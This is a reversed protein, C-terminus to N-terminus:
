GCAPLPHFQGIGGRAGVENAATDVAHDHCGVAIEVDPDAGVFANFGDDLLVAFAPDREGRKAKPLAIEVVRHHFLDRVNAIAVIGIDVARNFRLLHEIVFHRRRQEGDGLIDFDLNLEVGGEDLFVTQDAIFVPYQRLFVEVIVLNIRAIDPGTM